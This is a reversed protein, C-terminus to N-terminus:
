ELVIDSGKMTEGQNYIRHQHEVQQQVRTGVSYVFDQEPDTGVDLIALLTPVETEAIDIVLKM